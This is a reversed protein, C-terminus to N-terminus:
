VMEFNKLEEIFPQLVENIWYKEILTINIVSLLDVATSSSHKRSHLLVDRYSHCLFYTNTSTYMFSFGGLKHKKVNAGLPNCIEFNDYYLQIQLACPDKTFLPHAKFQEGDCYDGM